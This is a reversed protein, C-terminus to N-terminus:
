LARPGQRASGPAGLPASRAIQEREIERMLAAAGLELGPERKIAEQLAGAVGPFAELAGIAMSLAEPEWPAGSQNVAHLLGGALRQELSSALLVPRRAGPEREAPLLARWCRSAKESLCVSLGCAGLASQAESLRSLGLEALLRAARPADDQRLAQWLRARAGEPSPESLWGQQRACFDSAAAILRELDGAFGEQPSHISQRDSLFEVSEIIGLEAGPDAPLIAFGVHPQYRIDPTYHDIGDSYSWRLFFSGGSLQRAWLLHGRGMDLGANSVGYRQADFIPHPEWVLGLRESLAKPIDEQRLKALISPDM